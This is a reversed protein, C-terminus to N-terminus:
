GMLWIINPSMFTAWTKTLMVHEALTLPVQILRGGGVFHSGLSVLARELVFGEARNMANAVHKLLQM